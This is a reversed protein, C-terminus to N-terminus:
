EPVFDYKGVGQIILFQCSGGKVGTVRHPQGCPIKVPDGKELTTASAPIRTEICM